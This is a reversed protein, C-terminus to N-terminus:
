LAEDIFQELEPQSFPGVWRRVLMGERTVVYTEPLGTVGYDIAIRGTPDPGNPYRVDFQQLFARANEETDWENVGIFTVGRGAYAEAAAALRRAEERCPPCWSAWFNILVVRGRLDSLRVSGVNYLDLVFGPAPRPEIEAARGVANIGFGAFAAPQQRLLAAGMMVLLGLLLAIAVAALVTQSRARNREVREVAVARGAGAEETVESRAEADPREEPVAM